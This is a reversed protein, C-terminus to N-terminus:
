FLNAAWYAHLNAIETATLDRDIVLMAYIRGSFNLGTRDQGGIFTPLNATTYTPTTGTYITEVFSGDVYLNGSILNAGLCFDTTTDDPIVNNSSIGGSSNNEIVVRGTTLTQLSFAKLSANAIPSRSILFGQATSSRRVAFHASITTFDFAGGASSFEDDAGDFLLYQLGGSDTYAPEAGTAGQTINNANGSADDVQAVTQGSASIPTSPPTDQWLGSVGTIEKYFGDEGSGFLSLPDFAANQRRTLLLM